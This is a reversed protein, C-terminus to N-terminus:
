ANITMRARSTVSRVVDPQDLFRNWAMCYAEVIADYSGLVSNALWNQRLYVWIGEASSLEPSNPPLYLLTLNAPVGRRLHHLGLELSLRM